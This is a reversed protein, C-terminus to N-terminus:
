SYRLVISVGIGAECANDSARSEEPNSSFYDSSANSAFLSSSCHIDCDPCSHISAIARCLRCKEGFVVVKITIKLDHEIFHHEYDHGSQQISDLVLVASPQARARFLL